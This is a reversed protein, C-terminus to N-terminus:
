GRQSPAPRAEGATTTSDSVHVAKVEGCLLTAGIAGGLDGLSAVKVEPPRQDNFLHPQMADAIREAMQAGFRIGLGGGIVVLEVDLLNIASAVGAGLAKVAREILRTALEDGHELAHAWVGSSLAQRRHEEMIEFLKTKAGRKRELVARQEMAKRGAYAEMCGRRGCPCLAGKRKVVMHGIEGAGDRGRWLHGDLVIGGGVGTGWFVGLLSSAHRGSGLEFEALTAVDVDNGVKVQASVQEGLAEALPFAEEWDSLNRANCVAGSAADVEGPSGVGVADLRQLALRAEDAAERLTQALAQTVARPGGVGPTPRRSAGLVEGSQADLVIAQIKTGGLDIGGYISM